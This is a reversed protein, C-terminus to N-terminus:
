ITTTRKVVKDREQRGPRVGLYGEGSRVAHGTAKIASVLFDAVVIKSRIRMTHVLGGKVARIEQEIRGVNCDDPPSYPPLPEQFLLSKM